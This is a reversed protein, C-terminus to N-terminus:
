KVLEKLYRNVSRKVYKDLDRKVRQESIKLMFVGDVWGITVGNSVIRHGKEVFRAYTTNNYVEAVYSGDMDKRFSSFYSRRLLGTDSPSLNKAVRIVEAAIDELVKSLLEDMSKDSSKLRSSLDKLGSLNVNIAM